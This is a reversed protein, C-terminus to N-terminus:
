WKFKDYYASLDFHLFESNIKFAFHKQFQVCPVTNENEYDHFRYFQSEHYDTQIIYSLDINLNKLINTKPWDVPYGQLFLLKISRDDCIKQLTYMKILTNDLDINKSYLYKYYTQKAPHIKSKSSPWVGDHVFNRLPDTEVMEKYRQEDVEVDLKALDTLQCVVHSVENNNLLYKILKNLIYENSVAPGGLDIIPLKCLNLVKVWTPKVQGSWSIGCGSILINSMYKGKPM